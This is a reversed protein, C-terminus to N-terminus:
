AQLEQLKTLDTSVNQASIRCETQDRLAITEFENQPKAIEALTEKVEPHNAKSEGQVPSNSNSKSINQDRREGKEKAKEKIGEQEDGEALLTEGDLENKINDKNFPKNTSNLEKHKLETSDEQDADGKMGTRKKSDNGTQTQAWQGNSGELTGVKRAQHLRKAQEKDIIMKSNQFKKSLHIMKSNGALKSPLGSHTGSRQFVPPLKVKTDMAVPQTLFFSTAQMGKKLDKINEMTHPRYIGLSKQRGVIKMRRARMLSMEFYFYRQRMKKEMEIRKVEMNLVIQHKRNAKIVTAESDQHTNRVHMM